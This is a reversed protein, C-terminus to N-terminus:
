QDGRLAALVARIVHRYSQRFTESEGDWDSNGDADYGARALREITEDDAFVRRYGAAWLADVYTSAPSIGAGAAEIVDWMEDVSGNDSM